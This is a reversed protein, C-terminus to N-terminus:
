VGMGWYKVIIFAIPGLRFFAFGVVDQDSSETFIIFALGPRFFAIYKTIATGDNSGVSPIKWDTERSNSKIGWLM